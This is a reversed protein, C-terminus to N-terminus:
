HAASDQMLNALLPREPWSKQRHKNLLWHGCPVLIPRVLVADIVIGVVLAFGLQRLSSLPSFLLSAFSCATIAAASTILAGTQAIARRIGNRLGHSLMEERVRAMLFINYDVGVAVLLVFLFYAVKWDLGEAGLLQVFVLNTIGLAFTYTLIMTAVLNVCAAPDRLALLLVLFVGLPVVIWTQRQDSRTLIRIDASESNPGAFWTEVVPGQQDAMFTNVAVRLSEVKDMASASFTRDTQAVDIRALRGDPTLYSNLSRNIDPNQDIDHSTILLRDLVMRGAPDALISALAGRGQEMGSAIRDAGDSARALEVLLTEVVEGPLAATGASTGAVPPPASKTLGLAGLGTRNQLWRGMRLKAAGQNLESKLQDAGDRIQRLGDELATLRQVVRAQELTARSGLPQTASRVESVRDQREIWRSLDDILALGRSTRFDIESRLVISTPAITGNGFKEALLHMTRASTNSAPLENFADILFRANSGLLAVLILAGVTLSWSLIPRALVRRGVGDWYDSRNGRSLGRLARPHVRGLVVLLAPTLTFVAVVTVALGLAVSPGTRSFILFETTGMLLLGVIVTGASTVLATTVRELTSRMSGAPNDPNFQEAYRWSLFLCLDTGCGFLVVVLFLEVLPSVQWGVQNLWALLGRTIALCVGITFLPVLALWISRYVALLVILLLVVTAVAARDLSVQVAGMFDRGILADGSWLVQLGAPASLKGARAEMWAIAEHTSPAVFPADFAAIVIQITGDPSVLRQAVEPQTASDTALIRLVQPPRDASERFTQALEVAFARDEPQLGTPRHLALVARSGSTLDPWAQRIWRMARSSEAEAPLLHAQGEAALRTLDPAFALVSSAAAVWLAVVWLPRRTVLSPFQSFFRM